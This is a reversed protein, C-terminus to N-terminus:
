ERPSWRRRDSFCLPVQWCCHIGRRLGSSSAPRSIDRGLRRRFASEWDLASRGSRKACCWLLWQAAIPAWPWACALRAGGHEVGYATVGYLGVAALVLGVAGFLWTLYVLYRGDPDFGFNQHEPNRLSGGLMAAASPLVLSVAAQAIVLAKQAWHRGGGVERNAGRLADVPKAHSTMWAPAIGFIVGTLVAVGLAFLLVPTSPSAQVPIWTSQNASRFALCLRRDRIETSTMYCEPLFDRRLSDAIKGADIRDNKKKAAAIARLM